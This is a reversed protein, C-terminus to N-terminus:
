VGAEEKEYFKGGKKYDDSLRWARCKNPEDCDLHSIYADNSKCRYPEYHRCTICVHPIRKM